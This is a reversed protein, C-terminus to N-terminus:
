AASRGNGPIWFCVVLVPLGAWFRPVLIPGESSGWGRCLGRSPSYVVGHDTPITSFLFGVIGVGPAAYCRVARVALSPRLPAERGWPAVPTAGLCRLGESPRRLGLVPCGLVADTGIREVRGAPHLRYTSHFVLFGITNSLPSIAGAPMEGFRRWAPPLGGALCRRRLGPPAEGRRAGAARASGPVAFCLPSLCPCPSPKAAGRGLARCAQVAAPSYDPSRWLWWPGVDVLIPSYFSPFGTALLILDSLINM